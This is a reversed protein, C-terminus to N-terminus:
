LQTIGTVDGGACPSLQQPHSLALRASHEAHHQQGGGEALGIWEVWCFMTMLKLLGILYLFLFCTQIVQELGAIHVARALSLIVVRNLEESDGYLSERKVGLVNVM